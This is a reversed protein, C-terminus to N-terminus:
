SASHLLPGHIDSFGNDDLALEGPALVERDLAVDFALDLKAIM